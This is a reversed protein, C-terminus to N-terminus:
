RRLLSVISRMVVILLVLFISFDILPGGFYFFESDPIYVQKGDKFWSVNQVFFEGDWYSIIYADKPPAGLVKDLSMHFPAKTYSYGWSEYSRDNSNMWNNVINWSPLQSHDISYKKIYVSLKEVRGTQDPNIEIIQNSKTKSLTVIILLIIVLSILGLFAITLYKSTRM